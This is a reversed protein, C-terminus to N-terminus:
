PRHRGSRARRTWAIGDPFVGEAVGFLRRNSLAGDDAVDFATLRAGLTEAVILTGDDPTLVMGNPCLLDDAAVAVGGGPTVVVLDRTAL